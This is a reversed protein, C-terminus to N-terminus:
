LRTEAISFSQSKSSSIVIPLLAGNDVGAITAYAVLSQSKSLGKLVM